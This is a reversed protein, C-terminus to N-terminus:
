FISNGRVPTFADKSSPNDMWNITFDSFNVGNACTM